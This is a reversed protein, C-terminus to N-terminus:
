ESGLAPSQLLNRALVAPWGNSHDEQGIRSLLRRGSSIEGSKLFLLGSLYLVEGRERVPYPLNEIVPTVEAAWGPKDSNELATKLSGALTACYRVRIEPFRKQVEGLIRCSDAKQDAMALILAAEVAQLAHLAPNAEGMQSDALLVKAAGHFDGKALLPPFRYRSEYSKMLFWSSEPIKEAKEIMDLAENPRCLSVLISTSWLLAFASMRGALPHKAPVLRLFALAEDLKGEAQSCFAEYVDCRAQSAADHVSHRLEQLIRRPEATEGAINCADVLTFLWYQFARPFARGRIALDRLHAVASELRNLQLLSECILALGELAQASNPEEIDYVSTRLVLAEEFFGRGDFDVAAQQAIGKLRCRIQPRKGLLLIRSRMEQIKDECWDIELLVLAAQQAWFDTAPLPPVKQVWERAATHDGQKLCCIGIKCYLESSDAPRSETQLMRAYFHRAQDLSGSNYLADAQRVARAFPLFGLDDIQVNRLRLRSQQGYIRLRARKEYAMPFPDRFVISEEGDIQLCYEEDNLVIAIRHWQGEKILPRASEAIRMGDRFLVCEAGFLDHLNTQYFGYGGQHDCFVINVPFPTIGRISELNLEFSLRFNDPLLRTLEIAYQEEARGSLCGEELHWEGKVQQWRDLAGSAMTDLFWPRAGEDKGTGDRVPSSERTNKRFDSPSLKTAKRFAIGFYTLSNFGTASAIESMSMESNRLLMKAKQIRFEALHAIPGKGTQRLFTKMLWSKSCNVKECLGAVTIPEAFNARLYDLVTQVILEHSRAM